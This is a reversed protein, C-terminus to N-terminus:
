YTYFTQTSDYWNNKKQTHWSNGRFLGIASWTKIWIHQGYQVIIGLPCGANLGRTEEVPYPTQLQHQLFVINSDYSPPPPVGRPKLWSQRQAASRFSNRIAMRFDAMTWHKDTEGVSPSQPSSFLLALSLRLSLFLPLPILFLLSLLCLFFRLDRKKEQRSMKHRTLFFFFFHQKNLTM